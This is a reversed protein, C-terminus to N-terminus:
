GERVATVFGSGRRGSPSPRGYAAAIESRDHVQPRWGRRALWPGADEALGGRWLDALGKPGARRTGRLLPSSRFDRAGPFTLFSGPASQEGLAGLLAAAEEASLYVLLGEVLWATPQRPDFGAERLAGPWDERLDAAVTRRECRAVAGQEALVAEKFALVAPVDIEFLRTGEPWDLRHARVDLGAAPVVVQRLGRQWTAETLRDDFFRTRIVIHHAMARAWRDAESGPELPEAPEEPADPDAAAALFAAAYPDQFLRDPRTSEAARVRAVGLATAAVGRLASM